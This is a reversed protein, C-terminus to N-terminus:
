KKEVFYVGYVGNGLHTGITPGIQDRGEIEYGNEKLKDELKDCNEEGYTYLTRVPFEEDVEFKKVKDVVTQVAKAFGLAKGIAEVRGDVTVTIIPKINALTGVFGATRRVRGGKVLYELTDVGAYVRIRTKVEECKEFIEKASFGDTILKNAYRLLIEIMHTANQTDVVYVGDYEVMDKAICASQYTGSLASSLAFYIIEDGDAKAKEFNKLFYDPSPQSTHPFEKASALLNYFADSGLDVGDLYDKGDINVSIPVFIDYLEPNRCDASSDIMIKIM